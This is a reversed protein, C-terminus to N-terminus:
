QPAASKTAQTANIPTFRSNADAPQRIVGEGGSAAQQLHAAHADNVSAWDDVATTSASSSATSSVRVVVPALVATAAASATVRTTTPQNALVTTIRSDRSSSGDSNAGSSNTPRITDHREKQEQQSQQEKQTNGREHQRKHTANAANHWVDDFEDGDVSSPVHRQESLPAPM